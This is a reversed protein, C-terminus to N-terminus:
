SCLGSVRCERTKENRAAILLLDSQLLKDTSNDSAAIPNTANIEVHNDLLRFLQELNAATLYDAEAQSSPKQRFDQALMDRDAEAIKIGSISALSPTVNVMLLLPLVALMIINKQMMKLM